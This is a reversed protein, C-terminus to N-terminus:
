RRRQGWRAGGHEDDNDDTGLTSTSWKGHEDDNAGAHKDDPGTHENNTTIWPQNSLINVTKEEVRHASM